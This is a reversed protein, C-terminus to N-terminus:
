FLKNWLLAATLEMHKKHNV